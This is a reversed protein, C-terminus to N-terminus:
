TLQLPTVFLHLLVQIRLVLLQILLSAHKLILLDVPLGL